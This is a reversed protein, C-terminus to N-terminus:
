PNQIIWSISEKTKLLWIKPPKVTQVKFNQKIYRVDSKATCQQITHKNVKWALRSQLQLYFKQFQKSIKLQTGNRMESIESWELSSCVSCCCLRPTVPAGNFRHRLHRHRTTSCNSETCTEWLSGGVKTSLTSPRSFFGNPATSKKEPVEVRTSLSCPHLIHWGDRSGWTKTPFQHYKELIRLKVCVCM